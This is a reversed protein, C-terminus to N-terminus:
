QQPGFSDLLKLGHPVALYTGGFVIAAALPNAAAGLFSAHSTLFTALAGSHFWTMAAASGVQITKDSVGGNLDASANLGVGGAIHNMENLSLERMNYRKCCELFCIGQVILQVTAIYM